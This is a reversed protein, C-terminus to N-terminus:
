RLQGGAGGMASDFVLDNMLSALEAVVPAANREQLRSALEELVHRRRDLADRVLDQGAATLRVVQASSGDPDPELSLIDRAALRQLLRSTAPATVDVRRAIASIRVADDMEAVVLIARWQQLSLSRDGVLRLVEETLAVSARAILELSEVVTPTKPM